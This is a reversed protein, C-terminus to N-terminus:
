WPDNTVSANPTLEAQKMAVERASNFQVKSALFDYETGKTAKTGMYLAYDSGIASFEYTDEQGATEAQENLIAVYLLDTTPNEPDPTITLSGYTRTWTDDTGLTLQKVIKNEKSNVTLQKVSIANNEGDKFGFRYVSQQSTFSTSADTVTVEDGSKNVKLKALMYDYTSSIADITGNQGTYDWVNDNDPYILTLVNDGDVMGTDSLGTGYFKASKKDESTVETIKFFGLKVGKLYVGIKEGEVWYGNLVDKNSDDKELKVARTVAADGKTAEFALSWTDGTVMGKQATRLPNTKEMFDDNQCGILCLCIIGMLVIGFISKTKMNDKMKKNKMLEENNM